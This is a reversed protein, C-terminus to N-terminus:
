LKKMEVWVEGKTTGRIGEQYQSMLKNWEHVRPNNETTKPDLEALTKGKPVSIILM